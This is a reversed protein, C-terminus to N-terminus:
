QGREKAAIECASDFQREMKFPFDIQDNDEADLIAEEIADAECETEITIIVKM